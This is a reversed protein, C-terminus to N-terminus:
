KLVDVKVYFTENQDLVQHYMRLHNLEDEYLGERMGSEDAPFMIYLKEKIRKLKSNYKQVFEKAKEEDETVACVYQHYDDWSGKCKYIAFMEM